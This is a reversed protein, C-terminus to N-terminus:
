DNPVRTVLTGDAALTGNYDLVLHRIELPNQGPIAYLPMATETEIKSM